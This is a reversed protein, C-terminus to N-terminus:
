WTKLFNWDTLHKTTDDPDTSCPWHQALTLM